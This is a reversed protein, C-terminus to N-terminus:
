GYPMHAGKLGEHYEIALLLVATMLTFANM